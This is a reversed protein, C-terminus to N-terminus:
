SVGGTEAQAPAALITALRSKAAEYGWAHCYQNDKYGSGVTFAAKPFLQEGSQKVVTGSWDINIVSKRWGIEIWGRRTLVRFWPLQTCCWRPCYGNPIEEVEFYEPFLDLVNQRQETRHAQAAPDLRMDESRIAHEILDLARILALHEEHGLERTVTASISIGFAGHDGFSEKWTLEKYNQLRDSM